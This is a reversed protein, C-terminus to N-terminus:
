VGSGPEPDPPDTAPRPLQSALYVWPQTMDRALRRIEDRIPTQIAQGLDNVVRDIPPLKAPLQRVHDTQRRLSRGALQVQEALPDKLRQYSNEFAIRLQGPDQRPANPWLSWATALVLSAAGLALAPRLWPRRDSLAHPQAATREPYQGVPAAQRSIARQRSAAERRLRADLTALQTAFQRHSKLRGFTMRWLASPPKGRDAAASVWRQSLRRIM